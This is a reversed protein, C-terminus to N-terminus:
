GFLDPHNAKIWSSIRDRLQLALKRMEAAEKESIAGAREYTGLNRKKRFRHPFFRRSKV